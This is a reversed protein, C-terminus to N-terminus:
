GLFLMMYFTINMRYGLNYPYVVAACVLSVVPVIWLILSMMKPSINKKKPDLSTAALMIIQIGVMMLPIGFVAFAKSSYGDAQSNIGFHTAMPDPLQGWYYLGILVPLLTIVITIILTKKHEKIM